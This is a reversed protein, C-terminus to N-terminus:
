RWANRCFYPARIIDKKLVAFYGTDDVKALCKFARKAKFQANDSKSKAYLKGMNEGISVAAIVFRSDEAVGAVSCEKISHPTKNTSPVIGSAKVKSKPFNLKSLMQFESLDRRSEFTLAFPIARVRIPLNAKVLLKAFRDISLTSMVQMSTVGFRVAEDSMKKLEAIAIEDSAQDALVRSPRWQAYEWSRGNIKQSNSVREFYGGLVDPADDTIKLLPMAKSNVINGHGYFAGLSIPNDPSIQDLAFRDATKESLANYGITGFIWKGKPATKVAKKIAEVTEAWTPEMSDFTLQIGEPFPTFHFHADNIGPIVTKGQLDILRTKNGALRKIEEDSGVALIREGRIALAEVTSQNSEATFIKGNFLILEPSGGQAFAFLGTLLVISLTLFIKKM